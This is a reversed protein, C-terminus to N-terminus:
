GSAARRLRGLACRRRLRPVFLDVHYYDARATGSIRRGDLRCVASCAHQHEFLGIDDATIRRQAVADESAPARLEGGGLSHRDGGVFHVAPEHAMGFPVPRFVGLDCPQVGVFAAFGDIPELFDAHREDVFHCGSEAVGLQRDDVLDVALSRFHDSDEGLDSLICANRRHRFGCRRLKQGVFVAPDDADGGRRLFAIEGDLRALAHNQGCAAMRAAGGHDGRQVGLARVDQGARAGSYGAVAQDHGHIESGVRRPNRVHREHTREGPEFRAGDDVQIVGLAQVAQPEVRVSLPEEVLLRRVLVRGPM